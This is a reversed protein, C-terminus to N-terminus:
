IGWRKKLNKRMTSYTRPFKRPTEKEKKLVLLFRDQSIGSLRYPIIKDVTGGLEKIFPEFLSVKNVDKKGKWLVVKGGIKLLPLSIEANIPIKSVGRMTVIDYKGRFDPDKGIDEARTVLLAVANALELRRLLMVIFAAKKEKSDLLTLKISPFAIKIPIGPFGAGTGIDMLNAEKLNVAKAIALSDAFHKLATDREGSIATLNFRTSNWDALMNKHVLMQRLAGDSLEM